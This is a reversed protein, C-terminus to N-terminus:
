SDGDGDDFGGTVPVGDGGHDGDAFHRVGGGSGCHEAACFPGRGGAGAQDGGPEEGGAFAGLGAVGGASDEGGAGAEVAWGGCDADGGGGGAGAVVCM